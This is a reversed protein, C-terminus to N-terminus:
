TKQVPADKVMRDVRKRLFGGGSEAVDDPKRVATGREILAQAMPEQLNLTEGSKHGMWDRKLIIKM